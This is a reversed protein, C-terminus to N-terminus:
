LLFSNKPPACTRAMRITCSLHGWCSPVFLVKGATAPKRQCNGCWGLVIFSHCEQEQLQPLLSTNGRTPFFSGTWYYYKVTIRYLSISNRMKSHRSTSGFARGWSIPFDRGVELPRPDLIVIWVSSSDEASPSDFCYSWVETNASILCWPIGREHKWCGYHFKKPSSYDQLIRLCAMFVM